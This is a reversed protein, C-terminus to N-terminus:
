DTQQFSTRLRPLSAHVMAAMRLCFMAAAATAAINIQFRSEKKSVKLFRIEFIAFTYYKQYTLLKFATRFATLSFCLIPHCEGHHNM